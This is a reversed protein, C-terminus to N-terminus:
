SLPIIRHVRMFLMGYEESIEIEQEKCINQIVTTDTIQMLELRAGRYRDKWTKGHMTREYFSFFAKQTREINQYTQAKKDIYFLIVSDPLVNPQMYAANCTGDPNVSSLVHAEESRKLIASLTDYPELKYYCPSASTFGDIDQASINLIFSNILLFVLVANIRNM